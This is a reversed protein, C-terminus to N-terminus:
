RAPALSPPCGAGALPQAVWPLVVYYESPAPALYSFGIHLPHSRYAPKASNKQTLNRMKSQLPTTGM